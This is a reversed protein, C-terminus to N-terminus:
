YNIVVQAELRAKDVLTRSDAILGSMACGAAGHLSSPNSIMM